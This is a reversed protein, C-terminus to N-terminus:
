WGANPRPHSLGAEFVGSPIRAQVLEAELIEPEIGRSAFETAAFRQERQRRLREVADGVQDLV